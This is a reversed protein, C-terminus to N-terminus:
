FTGALAGSDLGYDDDDLTFTDLGGYVMGEGPGPGVGGQRGSEFVRRAARFNADVWDDLLVLEILVSAQSTLTYTYVSAAGMAEGMAVLEDHLGSGANAIAQAAIFGSYADDSLGLRALGVLMGWDDQAAGFSGDLTGSLQLDWLEDELQQVGAAWGQVLAQMRFANLFETYLLDKAQDQMNPILNYEPM